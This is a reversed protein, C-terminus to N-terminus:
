RRTRRRERALALMGLLGALLMLARADLAPTSEVAAPALPAVTVSASGANNAPTPDATSSSASATNVLVTGPATAAPIGVVLTFAAPTGAAFSANTCTITGGGGAAPVSCAFAPGSTQTFSVFTEGAPLTDTLSVNAASSPGANSLTLTYTLQSGPTATAASTKSLSLDATAQVTTNASSSNNAPNTDSSSTSVNATNTLVTGDSVGSGVAVTLTFNATANTALSAISCTVTAGTSCAFAPGSTQNLSVFTEGAPLVDSLLVNAAASVGSNTVSLTYSFNSGAAASSAGTKTVGVDAQTGITTSASASNNNSNPDVSDTSATATNTVVTGNAVASDVNVGLTFSASQGNLLMPVTCGVTGASGPQPTACTATPGTNQALSAFTLGAPLTDSFRANVAPDPGANTLTLTYSFTGGAIANAPASKTVGVDANSVTTGVTSSDNEPNPDNASSVTATNQYTGPTASTQATLTFTATAGNPFTALTCPTTNGPCNFAPGSNQTLSVFTLGAGLTDTWSVTSADGPGNNTLVITYSITTNEGATAPGSKTIGIDAATGGPVLTGASSTNNEPNDDPTDSSVSAANVFLTGPATAMPINVTIQFTAVAGAVFTAASCSVTGGDTGVAPDSCVFPAGSAVDSVFTMGSPLNDTMVANVADDPGNNQVTVTYTVNSNAAASSPGTKGIALDASQAFATAALASSVVFLVWSGLAVRAQRM